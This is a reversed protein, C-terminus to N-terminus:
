IWAIIAEDEQNTLLSTPGRTKTKTKGNLDNSLSTLPINWNKNAKMLSIHGKEMANMTDELEQDIWKDRPLVISVRNLKINIPITPPPMPTALTTPPPMALTPTAFPPEKNKQDDQGFTQM